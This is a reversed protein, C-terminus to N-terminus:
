NTPNQVQRDKASIADSSYMTARRVRFAKVGFQNYDSIFQLLEILVQEYIWENLQAINFTQTKASGGNNNKGDVASYLGADIQLAWHIQTEVWGADANYQSDFTNQEVKVFKISEKDGDFLPAQILKGSKEVGSASSQFLTGLEDYADEIKKAADKGKEGGKKALNEWAEWEPYRSIMYERTVFMIQNLTTINEMVWKKFNIINNAYDILGSEVLSFHDPLNYILDDSPVRLVYVYETIEKNAAVQERFTNATDFWNDIVPYFQANEESVSNGVKEWDAVICHSVKGTLTNGWLRCRTNPLVTANAITGAASLAIHVYCMNYTKIARCAKTYYNQFLNARKTFDEWAKNQDLKFYEENKDSDIEISGTQLGLGALQQSSYGLGVKYIPSKKLITKLKQPFKNDLGHLFLTKESQLTGNNDSLALPLKVKFKLNPAENKNIQSRFDSQTMVIANGNKLLKVNNPVKSM